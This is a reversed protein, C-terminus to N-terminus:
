PSICDLRLEIYFIDKYMYVYLCIINFINLDLTVSM